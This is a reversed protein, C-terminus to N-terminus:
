VLEDLAHHPQGVPGKNGSSPTPTESSARLTRVQMNAHVALLDHRIVSANALCQQLRGYETPNVRQFARLSSEFEVLRHLLDYVGVTEQPTPVSTHSQQEHQQHQQQHEQQQQQQAGREADSDKAQHGGEAGEEEEEHLEEPKRDDGDDGGVSMRKDVLHRRKRFREFWGPSAKFDIEPIGMETAIVKAKEMIATPTPNIQVKRLSMIWQFVREELDPFRPAAHRFTQLQHKLDVNVNRKEIEEACLMVNRISKDSVNFERALSRLSPPNEERRRRIIELRQADNLREGTGRKRKEASGDADVALAAAVAVAQQREKEEQAVYRRLVIRKKEASSPPLPTPTAPAAAAATTAM